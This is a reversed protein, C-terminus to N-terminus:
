ESLEMRIVRDRSIAEDGEETKIVIFDNVSILIGRKTTIRNGDDYILKIRKKLYGEM